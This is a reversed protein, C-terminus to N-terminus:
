GPGAHRPSVPNTSMCCSICQQVAEYTGCPTTPRSGRCGQMFPMCACPLSTAYVHTGAPPCVGCVLCVLWPRSQPAHWCSAPRWRQRVTSRSFRWSRSARPWCRSSPSCDARTRQRRRRLLSSLTAKLDKLATQSGAGVDRCMQRNFRIGDGLMAGPLCGFWAAAAARERDLEGACM